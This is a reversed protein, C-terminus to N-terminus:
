PYYREIMWGLGVSEAFAIAAAPLRVRAIRAYGSHHRRHGLECVPLGNEVCWRYQGLGHRRLAQQTLIHHARMPLECESFDEHAACPGSALVRTKWDLGDEAIM